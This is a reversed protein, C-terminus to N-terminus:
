LNVGFIEGFEEVKKFESLFKKGKNTILFHGESHREIWGKKEMQELHATLRGHPLNAEHLIYTIRSKESREIARLIDIFIRCKSRHRPKSEAM